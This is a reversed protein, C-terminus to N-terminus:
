SVVVKTEGLSAQGSRYVYYSEAYGSANTFEITDVLDFGGSFGGVAFSCVGLRVPLAYWIYQGDAANVTITRGKNPTLVPDCLSLIFTSDVAEPIESAGYYVGNYANYGTTASDTAGREDTVALTVSTKGEMSVTKSRVAVGVSEGGLTQRAPAKNLEWSVTMETVSTGMEVTGVNNTISLIDIPVYEMDARLEAIDQKIETIDGVASAGINELVTTKQDDTLTQSMDMRVFNGMANVISNLIEFVNNAM